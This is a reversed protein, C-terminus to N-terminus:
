AALERVHLIERENLPRLDDAELTLVALTHGDGSVFEVEFARGNRYAHVVTGVDGPELDHGSVPRALVVLDLERM